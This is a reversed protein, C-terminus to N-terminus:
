VGERKSACANLYAEVEHLYWASARKSIKFPKPFPNDSNKSLEYITTKSLATLNKVQSLRVVPKNLRM